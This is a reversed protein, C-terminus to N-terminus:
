KIESLESPHLTMDYQNQTIDAIDQKWRHFGAIIDCIEKMLNHYPM